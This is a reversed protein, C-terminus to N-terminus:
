LGFLSFYVAVAESISERMIDFPPNGDCIRFVAKTHVLVKEEDGVQGRM